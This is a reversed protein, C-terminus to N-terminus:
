KKQAWIKVKVSYQPEVPILNSKRSETESPFFMVRALTLQFTVKNVNPFCCKKQMM